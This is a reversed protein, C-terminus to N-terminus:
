HRGNDLGEGPKEWAAARVGLFKIWFRLVTKSACHDVGLYGMGQFIVKVKLRVSAEKPRTSGRVIRHTKKKAVTM